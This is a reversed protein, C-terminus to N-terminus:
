SSQWFPRISGVAVWKITTRHHRTQDNVTLKDDFSLLNKHPLSHEQRIKCFLFFYHHTHASDICQSYCDSTTWSVLASFESNWPKREERHKIQQYRAETSRRAERPHPNTSQKKMTQFSSLGWIHCRTEAKRETRGGQVSRQLWHKTKLLHIRCAVGFIRRKQQQLNM